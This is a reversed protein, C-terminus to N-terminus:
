AAKRIPSIRQIDNEPVSLMKKGYPIKYSVEHRGKEFIIQSITGKLVTHESDDSAYM